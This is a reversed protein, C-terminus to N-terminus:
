PAALREAVERVFAEGLAFDRAQLFRVERRDLVADVGVQLEAPVSSHDALELREDGLVGM